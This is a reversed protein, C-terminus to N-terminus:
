GDQVWAGNEKKLVASGKLPKSGNQGPTETIIKVNAGEQSASVVKTGAMMGRLVKMMGQDFGPMSASDKTLGAWAKKSYFPQLEKFSKGTAVVQLYRNYSAKAEEVQAASPIALALLLLTTFAIYKM